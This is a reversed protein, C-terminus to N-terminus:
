DDVGWDNIESMFPAILEMWNQVRGAILNDKIKAVKTASYSFETALDFNNISLAYGKAANIISFTIKDLQARVFEKQSGGGSSPQSQPGSLTLIQNIIDGLSVFGNKCALIMNVVTQFAASQSLLLQMMFLRQLNRKNM